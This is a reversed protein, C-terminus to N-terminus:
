AFDAKFYRRIYGVTKEHDGGSIVVVVDGPRAMQAAEKIAKEEVLIRKAVGNKKNSLIGKLFLGSVEGASRKIATNKGIYIKKNVGDIKDYVIIDDYCNAIFKGTEIIMKDTRDPALRVVGIIRNSKLKNGLEAIQALSFKEHAYDLIIKVGHSNELVTLRGGDKDLEYNELCSIIKQPINKNFIGYLAGIVFMANYISPLFRGGFTWKIKRTDIIKKIREKSKIVIDTGDLTIIEGGNKLFKKEDFYKFTIGTPLLNINKKKSIKNLQSTIYYDDANFVAYGGEGIRRFIFNKSQALDMRSKAKGVGMHDEFVNTFVGVKHFSYGLGHMGNSGLAAELVATFNPFYEKMTILYKGPCVTPAKEFLNRSDTLTSKQKENIYHGDTDVRLVNIGSASLVFSLARAVTTKGKTGTISIIDM